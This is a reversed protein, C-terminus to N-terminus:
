RVRGDMLNEGDEVRDFFCYSKTWRGVLSTRAETVWGEALEDVGYGGLAIGPM